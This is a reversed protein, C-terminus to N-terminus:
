CEYPPRKLIFWTAEWLCAFSSKVRYYELCSFLSPSAFGFRFTVIRNDILSIWFLLVISFCFPMLLGNANTAIDGLVILRLFMNLEAGEM